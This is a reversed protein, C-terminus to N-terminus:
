STLATGYINSEYEETYWFETSIQFFGNQQQQVSPTRKLWYGDSVGSLLASPVSQGNGTTATMLSHAFMKGVNSHSPSQNTTPPVVKINRLVYQSVTFFEVGRIMSTYIGKVYAAQQAETMGKVTGTGSYMSAVGMPVDDPDTRSALHTDFDKRWQALGSNPMANAIALMKPLNFLDKELDNGDLYWQSSLTAAAIDSATPMQGSTSSSSSGFSTAPYTVHLTAIPGDYSIASSTYGAAISNGASDNIYGSSFQEVSEKKGIWIRTTTYGSTSDWSRQPAQETPATQGKYTAM